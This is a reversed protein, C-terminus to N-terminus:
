VVKAGGQIQNTTTKTQRPIRKVNIVTLNWYNEERAWYRQIHPWKM